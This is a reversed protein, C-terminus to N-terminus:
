LVAELLKVLVAWHEDPSRVKCGDRCSARRMSAVELLIDAGTHDVQVLRRVGGTVFNNSPDLPYQPIGAM